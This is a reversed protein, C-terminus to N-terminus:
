IKFAPRVGGSYSAARNGACGGYSVRAFHTSSSKARNQLWYWEWPGEKGQFAIRNRRRKMPEWQESEAPEDEGYENTGFIEKETPIRLYDGNSFPILRSRIEEPFNAVIENNLARRLDSSLYGGEATRSENMPYEKKLCDVFCFMMGDKMKKVAMAEVEEGDEMRFSIIDGVHFEDEIKSVDPVPKEAIDIIPGEDTDITIHLKM